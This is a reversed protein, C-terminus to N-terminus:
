RFFSSDKHPRLRILDPLLHPPEAHVVPDLGTTVALSTLATMGSM